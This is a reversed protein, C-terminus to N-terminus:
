QTMGETMTASYGQAVRVEVVVTKGSQVESIAERLTHVLTSSDEVPGFALAGQARAIAAIDIDPEGIAQGVHKNAVPRDRMIAVREQHVEDNFYSRNNAVVILLPVRHHTATWIATAGMLFDGDGLVAVPLRGSEKLALAAGVAMGPGSGIGAGGDYGLYDLPSRFDCKEGNWSLTLRLYSPQVDRLAEALIDSLGDISIKAGPGVRASQHDTTALALKGAGRVGASDCIATIVADPDALMSLDSAPQAQHDFSWGNQLLPDLSINVVRASGVTVGAQHMTGALDVWDFSIVVDASAIAVGAEQSIFYGPAGAHLPHRTPFAAATKIDTVVRAGFREALAVRRDWADSDRSVRGMLFVPTKATALLDLIRHADEQSVAPVQPMAYNAPDPLDPMVDIQEEQVSVDFCVYTPAMPATRTITSARVMSALSAELSSPQDDWKVYPRVISAQDRSTHLWDIWPRRKAADVPGTAGYVMMPVRDCWANYLAMAAHMLGVNAHLMVALPKGTVKAWGHAIAVAHEEHLCLLIQPDRNGLYNVLSDHIGRFSSGPNLAIYPTDLKRIMEVIADSGYRKTIESRIPRDLDDPM